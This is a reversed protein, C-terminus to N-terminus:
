GYYRDLQRDIDEAFKKAVPDNSAADMLEDAYRRSGMFGYDSIALSIHESATMPGREPHSPHPFKYDKPVTVYAGSRMEDGFPIKPQRAAAQRRMYAAQRMRQLEKKWAKWEKAIAEDSYGMGRYDRQFDYFDADDDGFAEYLEETIIQDLKKETIKM